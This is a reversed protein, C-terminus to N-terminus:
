DVTGPPGWHLPCRPEYLEAGGVTVHPGEGKTAESKMYTRYATAGSKACVSTLKTVTSALGLMIASNYFTDGYVDMDLGSCTVEKGEALLKQVLEVIDKDYFQIEDFFYADLSMDVEEISAIPKASYRHKSHTVIEDEAYRDDMKPKYVGISMGRHSAWLIRQVLTSTKGAFMPGVIVELLGHM